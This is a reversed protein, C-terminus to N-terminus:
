SRCEDGAAGIMPSAAAAAGRGHRGASRPDQTCPGGQGAAVGAMGRSPSAPWGARNRHCLTGPTSTAEPQSQPLHLPPPSPGRGAGGRREGLLSVRNSLAAPCSCPRLPPTPALGAALRTESSSARRSHKEWRAAGV